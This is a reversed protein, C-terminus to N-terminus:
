KENMRAAKWEQMSMSKDRLEGRVSVFSPNLMPLSGPVYFVRFLTTMSFLYDSVEQYLLELALYSLYLVKYMNPLCEAVSNYDLM